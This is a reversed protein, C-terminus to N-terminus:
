PWANQEAQLYVRNSFRTLNAPTFRVMAIDLEPYRDVVDGIEDAQTAPHFVQSLVLFGHNAGRHSTKAAPCWLNYTARNL